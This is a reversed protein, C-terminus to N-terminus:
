LNEVFLCSSIYGACMVVRLSDWIRTVVGQTAAMWFICGSASDLSFPVQSILSYFFSHFGPVTAGAQLGMVQSGSALYNCILLLSPHVTLKLGVQAVCCFETEFFGVLSVFLLNHSRYQSNNWNKVKKHDHARPFDAAILFLWLSLSHSSSSLTKELCDELMLQRPLGGSSQLELWCGVGLEYLYHGAPPSPCM